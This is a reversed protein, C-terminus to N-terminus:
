DLPRLRRLFGDKVGRLQAPTLEPSRRAIREVLADVYLFYALLKMAQESDAVYSAVFPHQLNILISLERDAPFGVRVLPEAEGGQDTLGLSLTPFATGGFNIIINGGLDALLGEVLATETPDDDPLIGQEVITIQTGLEDSEELEERTQEVITEVATKTLVATNSDAKRSERAKAIYDISVERLYEILEQEDIGSMEIRDKTHSIRWRDLNLEGVLRQSQFSNPAGYVEWPKWGQGVGGTILRGRRFVNLGANAAKGKELLGIWGTVRKGRIMVDLSKKWTVMKDGVSEELLRPEDYSLLEGNFSIVVHGSALDRRYISSIETKIKGITRGVFIRDYEDLGEIEVRTYHAKPDLGSLIDIALSTPKDKKLKGVDVIASLEQDSGFQKSTVTWRPGLWCAATKLGMGFESRGDTNAPPKALQLARQFEELGMGHANDIVSLTGADRDYFIDIRLVPAASSEGALCSRNLEFNWTSNDVFEAIAYWAQYSLRRYTEYIDSQPRIDISVNQATSSM